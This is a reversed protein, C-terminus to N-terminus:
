NLSRNHLGRPDVGARRWATAAWPTYLLRLPFHNIAPNLARMVAAFRQFRKERKTDWDLDCVERMQPPMTGVLVLRTYANLPASL